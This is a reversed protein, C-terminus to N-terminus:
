PNKLKNIEQQYLENGSPNLNAAMQWFNIAKSSNGIQGLFRAYLVVIDLNTNTKSLAEQYLIDIEKNDANLEQQKFAIYKRWLDPKEPALDVAKQIATGASAIDKMESYVAFLATQSTYGLPMLKAAILYEDRAKALEGLTFLQHGIEMHLKYLQSNSTEKPMGALLERNISLDNEVKKQESATLHRDIQSIFKDQKGPLSVPSTSGLSGVPEQNYNQDNQGSGSSPKSPVKQIDRVFMWIGIFVVAAGLIIASILTKRNMKM